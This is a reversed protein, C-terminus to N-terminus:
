RCSRAFNEDKKRGGSRSCSAVFAKVMANVDKENGVCLRLGHRHCGTGVWSSLPAPRLTDRSGKPLAKAEMSKSAYLRELVAYKLMVPALRSGGLADRFEMLPGLMWEWEKSKERAEMLSEPEPPPTPKHANVTNEDSMEQDKKIPVLTLKRAPQVFNHYAMSLPDISSNRCPM